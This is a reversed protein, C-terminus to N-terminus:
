QQRSHSPSPSSLSSAPAESIPRQVLAKATTSSSLTDTAMRLRANAPRPTIATAIALKICLTLLHAILALAVERHRALSSLSAALSSSM